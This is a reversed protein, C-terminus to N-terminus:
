SHLSVHLAPLDHAQHSKTLKQAFRVKVPGLPYERDRVDRPVVGEFVEIRPDFGDEPGHALNWHGECDVLHVELVLRREALFLHLLRRFRDIRRVEEARRLRAVVHLADEAREALRKGFGSALGGRLTSPYRM